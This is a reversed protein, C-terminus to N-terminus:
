TPRKEPGETMRTYAYYLSETAHLLAVLTSHEVPQDLPNPYAAAEEHMTLILQNWAFGTRRQYYKLSMPKSM